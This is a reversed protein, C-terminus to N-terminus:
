WSIIWQESQCPENIRVTPDNKWIGLKKRGKKCERVEEAGWMRGENMEMM